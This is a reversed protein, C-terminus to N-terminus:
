SRTRKGSVLAKQQWYFGLALGIAAGVLVLAITGGLTETLWTQSSAWILQVLSYALLGGSASLLAWRLGWRLTFRPQAFAYVGGACAWSL